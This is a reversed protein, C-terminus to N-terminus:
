FTICGKRYNQHKGKYKYRAIFTRILILSDNVREMVIVGYKTMWRLKGSVQPISSVEKILYGVGIGCEDMRKKAHESVKIRM